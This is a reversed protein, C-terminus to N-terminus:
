VDLFFSVGIAAAATALGMGSAALFVYTGLMEINTFTIGDFLPIIEASPLSDELFPKFIVLSGIALASGVIGQVLGELMFPLRIFANSAGVLKMVEIERRRAYIALQVTTLVILVAVGSLVLATGVAANSLFGSIDQISQIAESERIVRLVGPQGEFQTSLDEVAVAEKNVPSVQFSTPLDDATVAEVLEPTEVFIDSFEAYAADKDLFDFGGVEPNEELQRAVADTQDESADPNMFVVFKVDGQWRETARDVGQKTMVATGVLTLAVAICLVSAASIVLNRSINNATERVTYDFKIAM